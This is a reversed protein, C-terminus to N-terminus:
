PRPGTAALGLASGREGEPRALVRVERAFNLAASLRLATRLSVRLTVTARHGAAPDDGPGGADLALVEAGSAVVVSRGNLGEGASAIVDVRVGPALAAAASAELPVALARQGPGLPPPRLGAAGGLAAETVPEGVGVAAATRRGLVQRPDGLLGALPLDAPVTALALVAEARAPDLLMGPPIPVRAVLVAATPSPRGASRVTAFAAVLALALALAIWALGRRSRPTGWALRRGGIV